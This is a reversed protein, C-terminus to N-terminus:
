HRFNALVTRLGAGPLFALLLSGLVLWPVLARLLCPLRATARELLISARSALIGLAISTMAAPYAYYGLTPHKGEFLM